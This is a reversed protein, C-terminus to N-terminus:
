SRAETIMVTAIEAATIQAVAKVPFKVSNAIFCYRHAEEHLELAKAQDADAAVTVQPRLVVEVFEGSGDAKESMMGQADDQYETVVIHNVACLHLYWLMHCSALSAVLLEEPNYRAPDGHFAPDSSALLPPKGPVTITHDRKYSKYSKTGEGENGTWAVHTKYHHEKM